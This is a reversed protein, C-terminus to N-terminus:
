PQVVFNTQANKAEDRILISPGYLETMKEPSQLIRQLMASSPASLQSKSRSPKRSANRGFPSRAFSYSTTATLVVIAILIRM